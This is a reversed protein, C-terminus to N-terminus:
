RDATGLYRHGALLRGDGLQLLTWRQNGKQQVSHMSGDSRWRWLFDYRRYDPPLLSEIAEPQKWIDKITRMTLTDRDIVFARDDRGVVPRGNHTGFYNLWDSFRVEHPPQDDALRVSRVELTKRDIICPGYYGTADDRRVIGYLTGDVIGVLRAPHNGNQVNQWTDTAREYRMLSSHGGSVWVYDRETIVQTFAAWSDLHLERYSWARLTMTRTNLRQVNRHLTIWLDDGDLTLSYVKNDVREGGVFNRAHRKQEPVDGHMWLHGVSWDDRIIRFLGIDTGAWLTGNSAALTHVPQGIAIRTIPNGAFDYVAVGWPHGSYAYKDDRELCMVNERSAILRVDAPLNAWGFEPLDDRPSFQKSKRRALQRLAPVNGRIELLQQLTVRTTEDAHQVTLALCANLHEPLMNKDLLAYPNLNLNVEWWKGFPKEGAAIRLGLQRLKDIKQAKEYLRMLRYALDFDDAFNTRFSADKRKSWDIRADANLLQEFLATADDAAADKRLDLLALRAFMNTSDAEVLVTLFRELRDVGLTRFRDVWQQFSYSYSNITKDKAIAQACADYDQLMWFLNARRNAPKTGKVQKTMWDRFAHERGVVRARTQAQQLTKLENLYAPNTEFLRLTVEFSKEAQGLGAYLRQLRGLIDARRHQPTAPSGHGAIIAFAQSGGYSSIQEDADPLNLLADPLSLATEYAAVAKAPRNAQEYVMGRGWAATISNWGSRQM